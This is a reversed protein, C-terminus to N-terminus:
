LMAQIVSSMGGTEDAMQSIQELFLYEKILRRLKKRTIKM